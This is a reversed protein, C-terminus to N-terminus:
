TRIQGEGLIIWKYSTVEKLGMPGRAHFKQTSIGIEAGLGFEEGDTFRTSANAYVSAADVENIFQMAASYNESIIAESHGGYKDIHEIAEELSGVTKVAVKLSLFEKGWDEEVANLLKLSPISKLIATSKEDCHLEVDSEALKSAIRPLYDSAVKTHILICDLANCVGPRQVKANNIIAVAKDCDADKDVYIHCVGVGGTIVPMAANERVLNILEVGGRPIILDIVGKMQLMHNVLAHETSEIIQIAGPDIGAKECAEQAIKALVISSHISERGSRLIVANGSKICLSSIDITVNPRSEYVAGIVGLPVRKKGIQLGNAATHMDFIEGIPDPLAIVKKISNSIAELRVPSLMIRDLMSSKIGTSEAYKYDIKNADLIDDHRSILAQAINTLAQNKTATSARALKKAAARALIGQEDLEKIDFGM